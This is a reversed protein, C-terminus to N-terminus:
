LNIKVIGDTDELLELAIELESCKECASITANYTIVNPDIGSDKMEQLLDLAKKYNKCKECASIVASYTIVDPDIGFTRSAARNVFSTERQPIGM